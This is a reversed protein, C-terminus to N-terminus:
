AASCRNPSPPRKRRLRVRNRPCRRKTSTARSWGLAPGYVEGEAILMGLGTDIGGRLPRRGALSSTMAGCGALLCAYLGIAPTFQEDDNRLPISVVFSDSFGRYQVTEKIKARRDPPLSGVSEMFGDFYKQFYSRLNLVSSVTEKLLEAAGAYEEPTRPLEGLERLKARQGQVDFFAVLYYELTEAYKKETKGGAESAVAM